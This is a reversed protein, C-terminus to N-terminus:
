DIREQILKDIWSPQDPELWERLISLQGERVGPLKLTQVLSDEPEGSSFGFMNVIFLDDKPAFLTWLKEGHLRKLAEPIKSKESPDTSLTLVFFIIGRQKKADIMAKVFFVRADLMKSLRYEVMRRSAAISDGIDGSSRLADRRLAGMIQWDLKKPVLEPPQNRSDSLKVGSKLGFRRRLQSAYREPRDTSEAAITAAFIPGMYDLIEVVRPANRFEELLEHKSNTDKAEFGFMSLGMDFLSFNPIAQYYKIFGEKEM